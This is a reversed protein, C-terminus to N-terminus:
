AASPLQSSPAYFVTDYSADEAMQAAFVSAPMPAAFYYGQGLQCGAARLLEAQQRTEIGAAIVPVGCAGAFQVAMKVVAKAFKQTRIDVGGGSPEVEEVGIQSVFARELKIGALPLGILNELPSHGRGFDDLTLGIGVSLFTRLVKDAGHDAPHTAPDAVEFSLRDPAIGHQNLLAVTREAFGDKLQTAPLNVSFPLPEPWDAAAECAQELISWTMDELRGMEELKPLFTEPLVMPGHKPCWRALTEAGVLKGSRMDVIPQFYPVFLAEELADSLRSKLLSDTKQVAELDQSFVRLPTPERGKMAKAAYLAVDANKALSAPSQDAEIPCIGASAGLKLMQEAYIFPASMAGLATRTDEIIRKLPRPRTTLVVFEDGGVRAVCDDHFAQKLKMAVHVLAADGAGHGHTDNIAKFDNLDIAILAKISGDDEAVEGNSPKALEKALADDLAYRNALQTLPDVPTLRTLASIVSEEAKRATAFAAFVFAGILGLGGLVIVWRVVFSWLKVQAVRDAKLQTLAALFTSIGETLVSKNYTYDASSLMALAAERKGEEVLGLAAVEADVLHDNAQETAARFRASIQPPALAKARAIADDMVPIHHQFRDSWRAEGTAAAMNASMTLIEDALLIEGAVAEARAFREKSETILHNSVLDQVNLLLIILLCGVPTAVLVRRAARGSIEAITPMHDPAAKPATFPGPM